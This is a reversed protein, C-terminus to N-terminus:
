PRGGKRKNERFALNILADFAERTTPDNDALIVGMEQETLPQGTEPDLVRGESDKPYGARDFYSDHAM